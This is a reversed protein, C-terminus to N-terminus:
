VKSTTGKDAQPGWTRRRIKETEVQSIDKRFIFFFNGREYDVVIRHGNIKRGNGTKYASIFDEKSDFEVFGYGRSKKEQDRVIFAAKVLGFKKM